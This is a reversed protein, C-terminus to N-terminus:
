YSPVNLVKNALAQEITQRLCDITSYGMERLRKQRYFLGIHIPKLTPLGDAEDFRRMGPQHTPGTLCSLGLGDRVARQVGDIGPSSYTVRWPKQATKLAEIMHNRYICGHPHAVLSITEDLSLDYNTSGVWAPYELWQQGLFEETHGEFLGVAIDIEDEQLAAILTSSLDCRIEFPTDTAKKLHTTLNSQLLTVAYDVPLGIRLTKDQKQPMFQSVALDNLRLIRKAHAALAVGQETLVMERGERTILKSGILQELRQLQLSVAPQTRGLLTAAMTFSKVEIVTIFARLLEISLNTSKM